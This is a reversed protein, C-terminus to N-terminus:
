RARAQRDEVHNLETRTGRRGDGGCNLNCSM